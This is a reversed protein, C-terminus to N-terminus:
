AAPVARLRPAGPRQAQWAAGAAVVLLLVAAALWRILDAAAAVAPPPDPVRELRIGQEVAAAASPAEPAPPVAPLAADATAAQMGTPARVDARDAPLTRADAWRRVSALEAALPEARTLARYREALDRQTAADAQWYGQRQAQVLRELTQAYAQPHQELWQPVGLRHRDKVLVDYFSQWHDSRI